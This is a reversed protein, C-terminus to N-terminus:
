RRTKDVSEKTDRTVFAGYYRHAANGRAPWPAQPTFCRSARERRRPTAPFSATEGTIVSHVRM